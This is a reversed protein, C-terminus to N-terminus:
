WCDNQESTISISKSCFIKSSIFPRFGINQARFKFEIKDCDCISKLLVIVKEINITKVNRDQSKSLVNKLFLSFNEGGLLLVFFKLVGKMGGESYFYRFIFIYSNISNKKNIKKVNEVVLNAFMDSSKGDDSRYIDSIIRKRINKVDDPVEISGSLAESVIEKLQSLSNASISMANAVPQSIVPAEPWNLNVAIKGMLSAEVATSCNRQIILHSKNIWSQVPGEIVVNVNHNNKFYNQYFKEDEFPHPRIIFEEDKHIDALLKVTKIIEDSTTRSQELWSSVLDKSWGHLNILNNIEKEQSQFRPRLIPFNTNVLIIKEKSILNSVDQLAPIYKQNCFDYRPSGTVIIKEQQLVNAKLLAKKQAYGWVSYFLLEKKLKKICKSIWEFAQDVDQLVGGETDLVAVEINADMCLNIFKINNTRVYNVIVIEPNISFVEYNQYLPVLLVEYGYEAIKRAVLVGGELDRLPNDIIICIKKM